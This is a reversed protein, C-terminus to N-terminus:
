AAQPPDSVLRKKVATMWAILDETGPTDQLRVALEEPSISSTVVIRANEDRYAKLLAVLTAVRPETAKMRHLDDLV